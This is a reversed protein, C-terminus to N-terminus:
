YRDYIVQMLTLGQPPATPGTRNRNGTQLAEEVSVLSRKGCGVELATGVIIRVMNYLFGNGTVEIYYMGPIERSQILEARYLTRVTTKASSGTTQFAAFDHEGQLLCLMREVAEWHMPRRELISTRRYEPPMVTGAYISYRYTKRKADYRPHFDDAALWCEMVRIDEPLRSNMAPTLREMPISHEMTMAAIQGRAHVGADTRGSAVIHVQEHFLTMVVEELIQQITMGNTQRQWGAYETGDYAIRM